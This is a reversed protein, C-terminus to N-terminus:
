SASQPELFVGERGAGGGVRERRQLRLCSYSYMAHESVFLNFMLPLIEGWTFTKCM